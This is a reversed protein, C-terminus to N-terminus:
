PLPPPEPVPLACPPSLTLIDVQSNGTVTVTHQLLYNEIDCQDTVVGIANQSSLGNSLYFQSTGQLLIGNRENGVSEFNQAALSGEFGVMGDGTSTFWYDANSNADLENFFSMGGHHIVVGFAHNGIVQVNTLNVFGKQQVQIGGMCHGAELLGGVNGPPPPVVIGNLHAAVNQGQVFSSLDAVSIGARANATFVNASGTLNVYGGGSVYLGTGMCSWFAGGFDFPVKITFDPSLAPGLVGDPLADVAEQLRDLHSPVYPEIRPVISALWGIETAADFREAVRSGEIRSDRLELRGSRLFVGFGTADKITVHVLTTEAGPHAAFLGGPFSAEVLVLEELWLPLSSVNVFSGLVITGAQGRLITPKALVLRGLEYRGPRLVVTPGCVREDSAALFAQDLTSFPDERTGQGGRGARQEVYYTPWDCVTGAPLFREWEDHLWGYDVDGPDQASAPTVSSSAATLGFLVVALTRLTLRGSRTM